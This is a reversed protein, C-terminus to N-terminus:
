FTDTSSFLVLLNDCTFAFRTQFKSKFLFELSSIALPVGYTNNKDRLKKHTILSLYATICCADSDGGGFFISIKSNSISYGQLPILYM